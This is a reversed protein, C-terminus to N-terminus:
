SLYNAIAAVIMLAVIILLTEIWDINKILNWVWKFTWWVIWIILPIWVSVFLIAWVITRFM